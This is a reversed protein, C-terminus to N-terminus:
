AFVVLSQDKEVTQRERVQIKKVRGAFPSKIENEMKMAELILVGQGAQVEEEEKVEIRVVVGPLPSKIEKLPTATDPSVRAIQALNQDQVQATFRKGKWLIQYGEKKKESEWELVTNNLLISYRQESIELLHGLYEKRDLKLFLEGEKETIEVDFEKGDIKVLYKM